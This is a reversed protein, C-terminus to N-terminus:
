HNSSSRHIDCSALVSLTLIFIVHRQHSEFTPPALTLPDKAKEKEEKGSQGMASIIYDHCRLITAM